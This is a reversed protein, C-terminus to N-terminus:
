LGVVLRVCLLQGDSTRVTAVASLDWAQRIALPSGLYIGNGAWPV